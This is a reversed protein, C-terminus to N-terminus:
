PLKSSVFAKRFKKTDPPPKPQFITPKNLTIVKPNIRVHWATCPFRTQYLLFHSTWTTSYFLKLVRAMSLNPIRHKVHGLFLLIPFSNSTTVTFIPSFIKVKLLHLASICPCQFPLVPSHIKVKSFQLTTSITTLKHM